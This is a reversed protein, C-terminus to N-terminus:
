QVDKPKNISFYIIDLVAVGILIGGIVYAINVGSGQPVAEESATETAAAESSATEGSTTEGSTTESSAAESSAAESSAAESSAAESSAAEGSAAESSAAEGSSTEGSASAQESLAANYTPKIATLLDNDSGITISNWTSEDGAFNVTTLGECQQFAAEGIETLTSPLTVTEIGRDIAFAHDAIKKVGDPVEVSVLDANMEFARAGIQTIKKGDLEAPIIVDEDEGNYKTIVVDGGQVEYTYDGSELSEAAASFPLMSLVLLAGTFTAATLRGLRKITITKKM